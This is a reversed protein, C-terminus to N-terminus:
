NSQRLGERGGNHVGMEGFREGWVGSRGTIERDGARSDGSWLQLHREERESESHVWIRHKNTLCLCMLYLENFGLM